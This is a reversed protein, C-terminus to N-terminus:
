VLLDSLAPALEPYRFRYGAAQAAGPIVRQGALLMESMEGFLLRLVVAPVPLVAPRRLAKGLMRTFEANTVPNPAVGNWAGGRSNELVHRFMEALDAIHIWSFWQKGDGLRGGAGLRFAPLMSRLAGGGADLVVGIRIRTVRIGLREAAAVEREWEVCLEALYGGGPRASEDLIEDGRSGYYGIASAAILAAPRRELGALGEVLRRTGVIRSDHIRRKAAATWRQAVPEGALHIVADAGGLEGASPPGDQPNWVSSRVGARKRAGKRGLLSLSHGHALLTEVLRRGILGSAGTIAVHM